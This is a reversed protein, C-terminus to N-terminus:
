FSIIVFCLSESFFCFVVVMFSQICVYLHVCRLQHSNGCRSGNAMFLLFLLAVKARVRGCESM